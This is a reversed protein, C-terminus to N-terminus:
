RDALARAIGALRADGGRAALISLGVPRGDVRGLPLSLQPVGTLGAFSTLLGIRGSLRDIEGLPLRVPPAPFPTTPLCLVPGRGGDRGLLAEARDRARCRAIEAVAVQEPTIASAAALNRAVNFGFRPNHAEIWDRFTRWAEARQLVNRQDAWAELEGPVGIAVAEPESGLLAGLAAVAPALADEVGPDALAFADAAVMLRCPAPDPVPEDLLVAAVRAFTGADRAFWGVTDFSPAQRCVGDFPIRGHTPRLGYLGCFSAPVRVSGGSDTGLAVDCAGAAVASASGSSSGGPMRGPAAPNPPTGCHPNFGLIGMSVECTVTKGVLSAGADLLAQVAWAHRDPVPHTREWDPNGGGTPHGAVDFLDKAAFSLGSLPGGAAGEVVLMPGPLFAGRGNEAM